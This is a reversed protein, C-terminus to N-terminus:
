PLAHDSLDSHDPSDSCQSIELLNMFKNYHNVLGRHGTLGRSVNGIKFDEAAVKSYWSLVQFLLDYM